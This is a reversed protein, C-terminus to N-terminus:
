LTVKSPRMSLLIILIIKTIIGIVGLSIMYPTVRGCDVGYSELVSLTNAVVYFCYCYWGILCVCLPVLYACTINLIIRLDTEEASCAIISIVILCVVLFVESWFDVWLCMFAAAVCEWEDSIGGSLFAGDVGILPVCVIISTLLITVM